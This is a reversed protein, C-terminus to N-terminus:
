AAEIRNYWKRSGLRLWDRKAKLGRRKAIGKVRKEAEAKELTEHTMTQYIKVAERFEKRSIKGKKSMRELFPQLYVEVQSELTANGAHATNFLIGKAEDLTLGFDSVGDKLMQHEQEVYIVKREGGHLRVYDAFRRAKGSALGPDRSFAEEVAM